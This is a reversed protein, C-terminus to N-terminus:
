TTRLAREKMEDIEKILSDTENNFCQTLNQEDYDDWELDNHNSNTDDTSTRGCNEFSEPSGDNSERLLSPDILPYIIPLEGKQRYSSIHHSKSKEKPDYTVTLGKGFTIASSENNYNTSSNKSAVLTSITTSHHSYPTSQIGDFEFMLNEFELTSSPRRLVFAKQNTSNDVNRRTFSNTQQKFILCDCCSCQCRGFCSGM